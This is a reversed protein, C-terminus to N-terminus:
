KRRVYITKDKVSFDAIGTRKLLALVKSLREHRSLTGLITENKVSPDQYVIEVDYWRAVNNMVNELTERNFLFFGSKWAIADEAIVNEVTIAKGTLVAQQNPKLTANATGAAIAVSGELLTTKTSPENDYASLNFQTGLVKISQKATQVIFPHSKDKAVHFFAEGELRVKRLGNENLSTAYSLMSKANLWVETKDPLILAYTEGNGTSLTNINGSTAKSSEIEYILKGDATKNIKIGAENAIQGQTATSLKIQKGDSLTLTAGVNGPLIQEAAFDIAPKEIDQYKFFYLGMALLIVAAAGSVRWWLLRIAPKAKIQSIGLSSRLRGDIEIWDEDSLSAEEDQFFQHMWYKTIAEDEPSYNGSRLNELVQKIDKQAM